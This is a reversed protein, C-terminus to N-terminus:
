KRRSYRTATWDSSVACSKTDIYGRARMAQRLMQDSFPASKGKRTSGWFPLAPVFQLIELAIEFAAADALEALVLAAGVFETARFPAIAALLTADSPQGVVFVAADPSVGLKEALSPAPKALAKLWAAAEKAGLTAVVDGQRTRLTLDDGDASFGTVDRRLIRARVEGRLIIENSELLIRGAGIKGAFALRAEADRGM